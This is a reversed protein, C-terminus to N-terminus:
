ASADGTGRAKRGNDEQLAPLSICDLPIRSSMVTTKRDETQGAFQAICPRVLPHNYSAPLAKSLTEGGAAPPCVARLDM